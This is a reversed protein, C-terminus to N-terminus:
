LTSLRAHVARRPDCATRLFALRPDLKRDRSLAGRHDQVARYEKGHEIPANWCLISEIKENHACAILRGEVLALVLRRAEKKRGVATVVAIATLADEESSPSVNVSSGTGRIPAQGPM